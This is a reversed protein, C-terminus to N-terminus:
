EAVRDAIDVAAFESLLATAPAGPRRRRYAGEAEDMSGAAPLGQAGRALGSMHRFVFDWREM